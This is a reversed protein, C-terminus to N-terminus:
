WEDFSSLEDGQGNIVYDIARAVSKETWLYRTSGHRSWPRIGRQLFGAEVMKRTANAKFANMVPEPKGVATVVSHVHNTRVNIARLMWGRKDCSERVGEEVAARRTAYLEVPEHKMHSRM